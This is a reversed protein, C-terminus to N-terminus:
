LGLERLKAISDSASTHLVGTGGAQEWPKVSKERDDVLIHGQDAFKAKDGSKHVVHVVVDQGLREAVWKRKEDEASRIDGTATLIEPSYQEVYNWLEQADPMFELEGWFENGNKIHQKIADWMENSSAKHVPKGLLERARKDFNALVGDLDLHIKYDTPQAVEHLRM